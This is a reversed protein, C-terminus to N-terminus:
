NLTLFYIGSLFIKLRILPLNILSGPLLYTLFPLCIFIFLCVTVFDNLIFFLCFKRLQNHEVQLESSSVSCRFISHICFLLSCLRNLPGFTCILTCCLLLASPQSSYAVSYRLLVAKSPFTLIQVSASIISEPKGCSAHTPNGNIM